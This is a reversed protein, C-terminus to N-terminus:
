IIKDRTPPKEARDRNKKRGVAEAGVKGATPQTKMSQKAVQKELVSHKKRLQKELTKAGTINAFTIV